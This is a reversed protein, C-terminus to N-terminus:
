IQNHDELELKKGVIMYIGIGIIVVAVLIRPALRGITYMADVLFQPLIYILVGYMSNWIVSLGILILVSAIVTRYKRFFRQKDPIIADIHIVFDDELSYFEEETLSKLNHVNFFSFFWIIPLVMLLFGMNLSTALAITGWFVAMISIGQKRFGMYLEGAGPILSFLFTWLGKKQVTM